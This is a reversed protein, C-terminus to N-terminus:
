PPSAGRELIRLDKDISSLLDSQSLAEARRRAERMYKLADQHNGARAYAAALAYMFRPTDEDEPTLTQLFLGIAEQLKEQHILIRGLNFKASRYNPKNDIAAQYHKEAEELNGSTMLLYAYNNHAEAYNPSIELARRFAEQAEPYKEQGTLLVGFNYHLEALNPNISVAARYHQEAKDPQGLRAYLIILNIHAQVYRPDVKLAREHEEVAPQMQGAAELRVGKKLHAAAGTKLDDIAGILPDPISPWGLKDKSYLTLHERAKASEGLDRYALALAYHAAGFSPYLECAKRLSEVASAFERRSAQVKGLWYYAAASDPHKKLVAECIKRTEDLKGAAFLSEGLMLQAPLYEPEQQLAESLSIAAQDYKGMAARTRGLYYTWRKDKSDFARARAFCAEAFEFQEYAYLIMGLHGNTGAAQPNKLAAEYAARVQDRMPPKFSDIPLKPLLPIEAACLYAACAFVVLLIRCNM